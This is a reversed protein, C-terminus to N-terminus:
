LEPSRPRFQGHSRTSLPESSAPTTVSNDDHADNIERSKTIDTVEPRPNVSTTVKYYINQMSSSKPLLSQMFDLERGDQYVIALPSSQIRPFNSISVHSFVVSSLDKRNTELRHNADSYNTLTSTPAVVQTYGPGIPAPKGFMLQQSIGSLDDDMNHLAAVSLVSDTEEFSARGLVGAIERNIGHRSMPLLHGERIMREVLLAVHAHNLYSGDHCLTKMVEKFLLAGAAEIGHTEYTELISNCTTRHKCVQEMAMVTTLCSGETIVHYEQERKYVSGSQSIDLVPESSAVASKIGKIGGLYISDLFFRGVREMLKKQFALRHNQELRASMGLIPRGLEVYVNWESEIVPSPIVRAEFRASATSIERAVDCASMGRERLRGKNLHFVIVWPCFRYMGDDEDDHVSKWMALSLEPPQNQGSPVVVYKDTVDDLSLGQLSLAFTNAAAQSKRLPGRLYVNMSPTKQKVSLNLLEKIRPLGTTLAVVGVGSIHFTNLTMQTLPEGISQAAESGVMKGPALISRHYSQVIWNWCWRLACVGMGCVQLSTFYYLTYAVLVLVKKPNGAMKSITQLADWVTTAIEISTAVRDGITEDVPFRSTANIILRQPNWPMLAQEWDIGTSNGSRMFRLNDRARRLRRWESYGVSDGREDVCLMKLEEDSLNCVPCTVREQCAPDLGSGGYVFGYIMSGIRVTGDEHLKASELAKMCTRQLYGTAATKVATDVLGERGGMAHMFYEVPTLGSVFSNSVFGKSEMEACKPPYCPLTREATATPQIRSGCISQQGLCGCVQSLNIDSGKSGSLVMQQFRNGPMTLFERACEGSQLMVGSAVRNIASEVTDPNTTSNEMASRIADSHSFARTVSELVKEEGMKSIVCDAIGVSFGSFLIYRNAVRQLDAVFRHCMESGYDQYFSQVVGGPAVGLTKKNLRGKVLEGNLIEVGKYKLNFGKPFLLSVIQAGSWTKVGTKACINHPPLEEKGPIPYKIQNIIGHAEEEKLFVNPNTIRYAGVLADQVPYMMPVSSKASIINRGSVMLEHLVEAMAAQTQPVHCNMEDGDFDANYAGAVSLNLRFTGGPMIKALHGGMSYKHLSPQRNFVVPDGDILHRHIVDGFEIEYDPRRELSINDGDKTTVSVAGPYTHPGNRARARLDDINVNNVYEPVTLTKAIPLPIGVDHPDMQPDPSIVSRGSQDVRKGMINSRLRGTKGGGMRSKLSKNDAVTKGQTMRSPKGQGAMYSNIEVQMKVFMEEQSLDIPDGHKREKGSLNTKLALARKLISQLGHTLDDQGRNSPTADCRVAPRVPPPPVVLATILCDEPRTENMGLLPLRHSPIDELLGLIYETNFQQETVARDLPDDMSQIDNPKWERYIVNTEKKLKIQPKPFKCHPCRQKSGAAAYTKAFQIVGPLIEDYIQGDDQVCM